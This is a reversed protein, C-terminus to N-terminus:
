NPKAAAPQKNLKDLADQLFTVTGPMEPPVDPAHELETAIAIAKHLANSAETADSSVQSVSYLGWLLEVRIQTSGQHTDM